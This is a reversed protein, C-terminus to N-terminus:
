GEKTVVIESFDDGQAMCKTQEAVYRDESEFIEKFYDEDLTPGQAIDGTYVLNMIGAAGGQALYCIPRDAEGYM